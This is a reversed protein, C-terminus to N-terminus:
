SGDPYGGRHLIMPYHPLTEPRPVSARWGDPCPELGRFLPEGALPELLERVCRVADEGWRAGWRGEIAWVLRDYAGAADHGKVTLRLMPVRGAPPDSAVTAYAGKKLLGLATAIAEKSVGALRPLDRVRVGDEGAVRLTNACVALSLKSEREFEMAFALLVKSLLACLTAASGPHVAPRPPHTYLGYGLIPLYGPLDDEFRGALAALATRLREMEGSGFRERWRQEIAAELPRWVDFARQGRASPRIVRGEAALYGWWRTARALWQRAAKPPLGARRSWEAADIGEDPVYQLFNSWLPMSVLWPAGPTSSHRSTRHPTRHEFENDFEVIFAVLAQSLLASIPLQPRAM